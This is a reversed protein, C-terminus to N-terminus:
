GVAVDVDVVPEGDGDAVGVAVLVGGGATTPGCAVEGDAYSPGLTVTRTTRAARVPSSDVNSACTTSGCPATAPRLKENPTSSGACTRWCIRENMPAPVM